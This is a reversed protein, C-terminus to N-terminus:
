FIGNSSSWMSTFWPQGAHHQHVDEPSCQAPQLSGLHVGWVTCAVVRTIHPGWPRGRSHLLLLLPWTPGAAWGNSLGSTFMTISPWSKEWDWDFDTSIKIIIKKGHRSSKDILTQPSIKFQLFKQIHSKNTKHLYSLSSEWTQTLTSSKHFPPHKIQKIGVYFLDNCMEAALISDLGTLM